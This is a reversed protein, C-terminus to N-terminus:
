IKSVKNILSKIPSIFLDREYKNMSFIWFLPIYVVAFIGIAGGLEVWSDLEVNRLLYMSVVILIIPVISMKAIEKWFKLV